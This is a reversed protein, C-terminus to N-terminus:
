NKDAIIRTAGLARGNNNGRLLLLNRKDAIYM